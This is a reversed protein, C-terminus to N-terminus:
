CAAENMKLEKWLIESPTEYVHELGGAAYNFMDFWINVAIVGGQDDNEAISEVHHWWLAPIFLAQGKRIEVVIMKTKEYLPFEAQNALWPNRIPSVRTETRKFDRREYLMQSQNPAFLVVKKQGRVVFLLNDELDNHLTSIEGGSGYWMNILRSYPPTVDRLCPVFHPVIFDSHLSKPIRGNLYLWRGSADPQRYSSVFQSLNMQKFGWNSGALDGFERGKAVEVNFVAGGATKDLYSDDGWKDLADWGDCAGHSIFLPEHQSLIDRFEELTPARSMSAVSHWEKMAPSKVLWGIAALMVAASLAIIIKM